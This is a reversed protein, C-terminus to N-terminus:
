PDIRTRASRGGAPRTSPGGPRIGAACAPAAPRGAAPPTIEERLARFYDSFEPTAWYVRRGKHHLVEGPEVMALREPKFASGAFTVAVQDRRRRRVWPLASKVRQWAPWASVYEQAFKVALGTSFVRLRGRAARSIFRDDTRLHGPVRGRADELSAENFREFIHTFEGPRFAMVSSNGFYYAGPWLPFPLRWTPTMHNRLMLLGGHRTLEDTLRAIDGRVITDLDLYITPLDPDLLNPAFISLKLFCGWGVSPLLRAFAPFPRGDVGPDYAAAPRDSICVFRVPRSCRARVARCLGNVVEPGYRTGWSVCVVQIDM